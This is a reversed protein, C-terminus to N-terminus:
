QLDAKVEAKQERAKAILDRLPLLSTSTLVEVSASSIENMGAQPLYVKANLPTNNPRTNPEDLHSENTNPNFPNTVPRKNEYPLLTSSYSLGSGPLGITTKIGKQGVNLTAGPVGISVSVGRKGINLRVGPFLNFTQRLRLSM